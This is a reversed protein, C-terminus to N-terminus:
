DDMFVLLELLCYNLTKIENSLAMFELSSEQGDKIMEKKEQTKIRVLDKLNKVTDKYIRDAEM